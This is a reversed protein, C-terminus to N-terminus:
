EEETEVNKEDKEDKEDPGKGHYLEKNTESGVTTVKKNEDM